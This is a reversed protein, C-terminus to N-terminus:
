MGFISVSVRDINKPVRKVWIPWLKVEVREIGKFNALIQKIESKNKNLIAGQFTDTKLSDIIDVKVQLTALITGKQYDIVPPHLFTVEKSKPLITQDESLRSQIEQNLLIDLDDKKFVVARAVIKLTAVFKDGPDGIEHSSTKEAIEENYAESWLILDEPLETKLESVKLSLKSRLVEYAGELDDGSVVVAQGTLGGSMSATSVAYIKDYRETGKLAPMQFRSPGINYEEGAEAALVEAEKTGPTTQGDEIVAGPVTINKITWFVKGNESQFRSPIFVQPNSSFENFITITGSAKKNVDEIGGASFEQSDSEEKVLLEGPLTGSALDVETVSKDILVEVNFSATERVPFIIVEAKPLVKGFVFGAVVFTIILVLAIIRPTSLHLKTKIFDGPRKIEKLDGFGNSKIREERYARLFRSEVRGGIRSTKMKASKKASTQKLTIKKTKLIKDKKISGPNIKTPIARRSDKKKPVIDAMKAMSESVFFNGEQGQPSAVKMGAREAFIKGMVDNTVITVEKANALAADKLLYADVINQLIRAGSPVILSVDKEGRSVVEDIITNIDDDPNIYIKAM